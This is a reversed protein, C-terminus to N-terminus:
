RVAARLVRLAVGRRSGVVTLAVVVGASAAPVHGPMRRHAALREPSELVPIDVSLIESDVSTQRNGM